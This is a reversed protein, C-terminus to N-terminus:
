DDSDRLLEQKSFSPRVLEETCQLIPPTLSDMLTKCIESEALIVREIVSSSFGLLAVCLDERIEPNERFEKLSIFLEDMKMELFMMFSGIIVSPDTAETKPTHAKKRIIPFNHLQPTKLTDTSTQEVKQKKRKRIVSEVERKTMDALNKEVGDVDHREEIFDEREPEPLALLAVATTLGLDAVLQPNSYERAIRMLNQATRDSMNFNNRLWGLWHGHNVQTKAEILLMGIKIFAEVGRAQYEIIEATIVDIDRPEGSTVDEPQNSTSLNDRVKVKKAM